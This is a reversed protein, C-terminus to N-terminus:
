EMQNPAMYSDEQSHTLYRYLATIFTWNDNLKEKSLKM